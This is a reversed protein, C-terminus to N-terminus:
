LFLQGGEEIPFRDLLKLRSDVTKLRTNPDHLTCIFRGRDSLHERIKALAQRQQSTSIIEAFSHFPIFIFDFTEDLSLECVDMEVLTASLNKAQLKQGLVELMERSSDVCTLDFGAQILPLSVRGTGSMLELIKGPHKRAEDLFFQKDFDSRVYFDYLHAIRGYKMAPM